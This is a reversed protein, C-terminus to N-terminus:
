DVDKNSLFCYPSHQVKQGLLAHDIPVLVISLKSMDGVIQGM